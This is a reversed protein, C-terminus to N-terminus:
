FKFAGRLFFLWCQQFWIRETCRGNGHIENREPTVSRALQGRLSTDSCQSRVGNCRAFNGGISFGTLYHCTIWQLGSMVVQFFIYRLAVLSMSLGKPLFHPFSSFYWAWIRRSQPVRAVSLRWWRLEKRRFGSSTRFRFFFQYYVHHTWTRLDGLSANAAAM